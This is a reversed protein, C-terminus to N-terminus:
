GSSFSESKKVSLNRQLKIKRIKSILRPTGLHLALYATERYVQSYNSKLDKYQTHSHTLTCIPLSPQQNLLWYVKYKLNHM